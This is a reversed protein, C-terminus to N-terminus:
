ASKGQEFRRRQGNLMAALLSMFEDVDQPKCAAAVGEQKAAQLVDYAGVGNLILAPHSHAQTEQVFRVFNAPNQRLEASCEVFLLDFCGEQAELKLIMQMVSDVTAVEYGYHELLMAYTRLLPRDHHLVLIRKRGNLVM